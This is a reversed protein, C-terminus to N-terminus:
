ITHEPPQAVVSVQFNPFSCVATCLEKHACSGPLELVALPEAEAQDRAKTTAAQAFHNSCKTLQNPSILAAAILTGKTAAAGGTAAAAAAALSDVVAAAATAAATASACALL